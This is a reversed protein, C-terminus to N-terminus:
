LVQFCSNLMCQSQWLFILKSVDTCSVLHISVSFYVLIWGCEMPTLCDLGVPVSAESSWARGKTCLCLTHDVMHFHSQNSLTHAVPLESFSGALRSTWMKIPRKPMCEPLTHPLTEESTFTKYGVMPCLFDSCTKVTLEPYVAIFFHLKLLVICLLFHTILIINSTIVTISYYAFM